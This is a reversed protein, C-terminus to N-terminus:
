GRIGSLFSDVESRLTKAEIVLDQTAQLMGGASNGAESTAMTLQGLYSTVEATGAAAQQVNRAIEQTAAGQEEVSAAIAGAIENIRNITGVIARIADVAQNTAAQVAGIQTSIDETAKGTQTALSKVENAVVAFGKGADGARAAEITANLALLNTQSAIDNILKVVEGIRVASQSLGEVLQNTRQAEAVAESSITSSAQVQRSIERISSSLEEAATAVTAVNASAQEAAAAVSTAQGSASQVAGSVTQAAGELQGAAATINGAVRKVSGEFGDAVKLLGARREAEAQTKLAEQASRLRDAEAAGDRLVAVAQALQGIEDHRNTEPVTVSFDRAALQKTVAVLRIVGGGINRALAVVLAIGLCLVVVFIISFRLAVTRFEADVDDIYIGTGIVWGWPEFTLGTAVKDVPIDSGARPFQYFVAKGGNEILHRIFPVGNPDKLDLFNSGEREPKPPLLVNVGDRAYIFFYEVKEYRVGRLAEKAMARATADDFEGAKSRAHFSAIVGRAAESLNRVKAIRDEIMTDRLQSLAVVALIIFGVATLVATSMLKGAIGFRIM